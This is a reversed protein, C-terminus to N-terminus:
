SARGALLSTLLGFVGDERGRRSDKHGQTGVVQTRHDRDGACRYHNDYVQREHQPIM